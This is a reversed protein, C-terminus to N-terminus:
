LLPCLLCLMYRHLYIFNRFGLALLLNTGDAACMTGLGRVNSLKHLLISLGLSLIVVSLTNPLHFLPISLVLTKLKNLKLFCVCEMNLSLSLTGVSIHLELCQASM